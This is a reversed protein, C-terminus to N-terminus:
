PGSPCPFKKRWGTWDTPMPSAPLIPKGGARGAFPCVPFGQFAETVRDIGSLMEVERGTRIVDAFGEVDFSGPARPIWSGRYRLLVGRLKGTGDFDGWLQQFKQDFGHNYIDGILFLNLASEVELFQLTRERDTETLQRIGM